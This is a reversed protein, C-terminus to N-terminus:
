QPDPSGRPGPAAARRVETRPASPCAQAALVAERRLRALLPHGSSGPGPVAQPAAALAAAPAALRARRPAAALSSALVAAAGGDDGGLWALLLPARAPALAAALAVLRRRDPTM